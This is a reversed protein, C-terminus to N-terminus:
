QRPRGRVESEGVAVTRGNGAAEGERTTVETQARPHEDVVVPRRMRGGVIGGAAALVLGVLVSWFGTWMASAITFGGGGVDDAGPQLGAGLNAAGALVATIWLVLLLAWATIGNVLGALVGRVGALAGAIWGSIFLAAATTIGVLWALADGWGDGLRDGTSYAIAFWLTNLLACFGSGIIVGAIVPGWRVLDPTRTLTNEDHRLRSEAFAM